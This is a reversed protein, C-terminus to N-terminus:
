LLFFTRFPASVVAALLEPFDRIGNGDWELVSKRISEDTIGESVVGSSSSASKSLAPKLKPASKVAAAAPADDDPSVILM